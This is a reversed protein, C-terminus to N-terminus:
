ISDWQQSQELFYIGSKKSTSANQQPEKLPSPRAEAVGVVALPHRSGGMKSNVLFLESVSPVRSTWAPLL